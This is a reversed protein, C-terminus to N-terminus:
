RARESLHIGLALLRSRIEPADAVRFRWTRPYYSGEPVTLKGLAAFFRREPKPLESKLIIEIWEHTETVPVSVEKGALKDLGYMLRRLDEGPLNTFRTVKGAVIEAAHYRKLGFPLTQRCLYRGSLKDTREVWRLAQPTTSPLFEPAYISLQGTQDRWAEYNGELAAKTWGELDEPSEGMWSTCDESPLALEQAMRGGKTRRFAGSHELAASLESPLLSTPLGGVLLRTDDATELRVERTPAPLWRGNALEALDGAEALEELSEKIRPRIDENSPDLSASLNLLRLIHVPRSGGTLAWVCSRLLACDQAVQDCVSSGVLERKLILRAEM